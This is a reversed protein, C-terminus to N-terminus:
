KNRKEKINVIADHALTYSAAAFPASALMKWACRDSFGGCASLVALTLFGAALVLAALTEGKKCGAMMAMKNRRRCPPNKLSRMKRSTLM